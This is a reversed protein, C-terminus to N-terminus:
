DIEYLLVFKVSRVRQSAVEDGMVYKVNRHKEKDTITKGYSSNGVLKSTTALLELDPDLDGQRRANASDRICM